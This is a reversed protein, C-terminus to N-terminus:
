AFLGLDTREFNGLNPLMAGLDTDNIGFWRGLTNIYQDVSIDPILRMRRDTYRESMPDYPPPTGIMRGGRVAGGIVFHHGGWGHDSGTGNTSVTRGFDSVTFLTVSESLGMAEIATMFEGIAVATDVKAGQTNAQAGHSDFGGPAKIYFIQRSVGFSANLGITQAIRAFSNSINTQSRGPIDAANAIVANFTDINDMGRRAMDALDRAFVNSPALGGQRLHEDMLTNFAEDRTAAYSLASAQSGLMLPQPRGSSVVLGRALRGTMFGHRPTSLGITGYVRDHGPDAVYVADMMRGGYGLSRGEVDGTLWMSQQDNHSFLRPPLVATRNAIDTRTTPQVLPGVNTIVVAKGATYLDHVPAWEPALGYEVGDDARGLSLLNEPERSNDDYTDMLASRVDRLQAHADATIPMVTDTGDNGGVFDVCVLAKYGDTDAAFARGAVATGMVPLAAAFGASQQLFRRRNLYAM